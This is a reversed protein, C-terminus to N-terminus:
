LGAEGFDSLIRRGTATYDFIHKLVGDYNREVVLLLVDGFEIVAQFRYHLRLGVREFQHEHVVAAGIAGTMEQAFDLHAATPFEARWGRFTSEMRERITGQARRGSAFGRNYADSQSIM